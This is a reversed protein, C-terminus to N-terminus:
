LTLVGQCVFDALTLWPAACPPFLAGLGRSTGFVSHQLGGSKFVRSVQVAGNVSVQYFNCIFVLSVCHDQLKPNLTLPDTYNLRTRPIDQTRHVQFVFRRCSSSVCYNLDPTVIKPPSADPFVQLLRYPDGGACSAM